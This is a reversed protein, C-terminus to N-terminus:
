LQNAVVRPASAPQRAAFLEALKQAAHRAAALPDALGRIDVITAGSFYQEELIKVTAQLHAQGTGLQVSQTVGGGRVADACIWLKIMGALQCAADEPSFGATLIRYTDLAAGVTKSCHGRIIEKLWAPDGSSVVLMIGIRDAASLLEDLVADIMSAQRSDSDAVAHGQRHLASPTASSKSPPQSPEGLYVVVAGACCERALEFARRAQHILVEANVPDVCGRVGAGARIATLELQHAQLMKVWQRRATTGFDSASLQPHGIGVAIGSYGLQAAATISQRMDDGLTDIHLSINRNTMKGM